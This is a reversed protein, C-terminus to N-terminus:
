TCMHGFYTSVYLVAQQTCGQHQYIDQCRTCKDQDRSLEFPLNLM